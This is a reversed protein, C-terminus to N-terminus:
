HKSSVTAWLTELDFTITYNGAGQLNDDFTSGDPYEYWGTITSATTGTPRWIPSWSANTFCFSVKETAVGVDVTYRYDNDMKTMDPSMSWDAFTFGTGTVNMIGTYSPVAPTYSTITYSKNQIDIQITYYGKQAITVPEVYGNKNMLKTSVYPSVGFYDGTISQTPVFAIKTNNKPAYFKASYKYADSRAMYKYYGLIYDAPSEETNIVYMEAYDSIPDEDEAPIVIFEINYVGKNGTKDEVTITSLFSGVEEFKIAEEITQSKDKLAIEKEYSIDPISIILKSLERDDEVILNLLYNGEQTVVDFDVSAPTAPKTSFVPATVDPLFKVPIEKRTVNDDVDTITIVLIENFQNEIDSPVTFTYDYNFVNPKQSSLDYIKSINWNSCVIEITRIGNEASVMGKVNVENGPYTNIENNEVSLGPAVNDDNDCAIICCTLFLMMLLRVFVNTISRKMTKYKITISLPM